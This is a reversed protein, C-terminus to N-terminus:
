SAQFKIVLHENVACILAMNEASIPMIIRREPLGNVQKEAVKKDKSYLSLLGKKSTVQTM